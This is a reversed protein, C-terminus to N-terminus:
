GRPVGGRVTDLLRRAQPAVASEPYELILEELAAIAEGQKGQKVLVRALELRAAPAAATGKAAGAKRFLQEAQPMSGQAQRLRGALLALEGGGREPPLSAALEAFGNAATATDGRELALYASGLAALTDADLVQLIALVSARETADGRDAAFPGAGALDKLAGGIDGHYLRARGRIAMGEISSDAKVLAEARDLKGQHLWGRAVQHTIREAEEVSLTKKVEALRSDAEELKGEAILVGILTVGATAAADPSAKPDSALRSLMRRASNQEGADAYARAAEALYRTRQSANRDAMSELARARALAADRGPTARVEELFEELVPVGEAGAPLRKQIRDYGALAENWRAALGGALRDALPDGRKDFEALVLNRRDVPVQSLMGLASARYGPMGRVATLWETIAQPYDGEYTSLQALEGALADPKRLKERGIRYAARANERDRAALAAFGWERYPAESGPEVAAWRDVIRRVTDANGAATWARVAIGYLVPNKADASIAATAAPALEGPKGLEHLVRELGLLANLEAPKATLIKRYGEAAQAYSGRRELDFAKDYPTQQAALVRAAFLPALLM